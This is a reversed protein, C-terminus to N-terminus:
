WLSPHNVVILSSRTKVVGRHTHTGYTEFAGPAEFAAVLTALALRQVGVSGHQLAGLLLGRRPDMLPWMVGLPHDVPGGYVLRTPGASGGRMMAPSSETHTHKYPLCVTIKLHHIVAIVAIVAVVTSCLHAPAANTTYVASLVCM